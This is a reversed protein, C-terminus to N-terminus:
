CAICMTNLMSYVNQKTQHQPSSIQQGLNFLTELITLGWWPCM